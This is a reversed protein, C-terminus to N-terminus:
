TFNTITGNDNVTINLIPSNLSLWIYLKTSPTGNHFNYNSM